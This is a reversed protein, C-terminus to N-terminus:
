RDPRGTGSIRIKARLVEYADIEGTPGLAELQEWSSPLTGPRGIALAIEWSGEELGTDRVIVDITAVGTANIEPQVNLRLTKGETSRALAVLEVPGGVPDDPWMSTRLRSEFSYIPVPRDAPGRSTADGVLPGLTYHASFHEPSRPLTTILMVASAAVVALALMLKPRKWWPLRMVENRRTGRDISENTGHLRTTRLKVLLAELQEERREPTLPAFVQLAHKREDADEILAAAVEPGTEGHVVRYWAAAIPTSLALHAGVIEATRHSSM